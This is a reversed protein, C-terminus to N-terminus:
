AQRRPQVPQPDAQHGVQVDAGEGAARGHPADHLLGAPEVGVQDQEGAVQDVVGQGVQGVAEVRHAVHLRTVPRVQAGAVVVQDLVARLEDAADPGPGGQEDVPGPEDRDPALEDLQEAQGRVAVVVPDGTRYLLQGALEG